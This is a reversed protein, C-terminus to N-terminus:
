SARQTRNQLQSATQEIKLILDLALAEPDLNVGQALRVRHGMEQQLTAWKQAARLDPSLRKFINAEKSTATQTKQAATYLAMRSLFYDILELFQGFQAGTGTSGRASFAKTIEKLKSRDIRPLDQMLELLKAYQAMGGGQALEAARGVSGQAMNILADDFPTDPLIAAFARRLDKEKLPQLPMVRCRSRITPLVRGVQHTVLLFIANKPPEELLKLIANAANVNMDDLADVIVVRRGNGSASIAFFDRLKRVEDITIFTKIKGSKEDTPRRLVCLGPESGALIRAVVPHDLPTDLTQPLAPLADAFMTNEHEAPQSLLFRAIVYALSAKGIGRPGCLMWAHHLRGAKLTALFDEIAEDHGYVHRCEKPHAIQDLCDPASTNAM